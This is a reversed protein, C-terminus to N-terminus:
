PMEKIVLRMKCSNEALSQTECAPLDFSCRQIVEGTWPDTFTFIGAMGRQQEYFNVITRAEEPTIRDLHLTWYRQQPTVTYRQESGDLYRLVRSRTKTTTSSGRQAYAGSALTPFQNM